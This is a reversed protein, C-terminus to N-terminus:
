SLQYVFPKLFLEFLNEWSRTLEQYEDYLARFRKYHKPSIKLSLGFGEFFFIPNKSPCNNYPSLLAGL